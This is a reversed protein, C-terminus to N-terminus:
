AAGDLFVLPQFGRQPAFSTYVGAHSIIADVARCLIGVGPVEMPCQPLGNVGMLVGHM